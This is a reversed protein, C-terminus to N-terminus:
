VNEVQETARETSQRCGCSRRFVPEVPLRLKPTTPKGEILSVLQQVAHTSVGLTPARVTTLPPDLSEAIPADDFGVVSVDEPVRRSSTRLARLAGAAADDCFAFVADFEVQERLLELTAACGLETSGGARMLGPDVGLGAEVLAQRYGSERRVSDENGYSGRLYVIRRRGHAEILHQVVRHAGQTNDITVSPIALGDPASQYLLVAPCREAILLQFDPKTLYNPFVLVGSTNHRGVLRPGAGEPRIAVLLDYGLNSAAGAVERTLISMFETSLNPIMLGLARSTGQEPVSSVASPLYGLDQIVKLVRERTEAGCKGRGNLVRSVTAASVGASKAVEQIRISVGPALPRDVKDRETVALQRTVGPTAVTL